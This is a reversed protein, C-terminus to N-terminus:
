SNISKLDYSIFYIKFNDYLMIIKKCLVFTDTVYYMFCKIVERLHLQTKAVLM